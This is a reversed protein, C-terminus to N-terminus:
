TRAHQADLAISRWLAPLMCETVMLAAGHREFVSRRAAFAQPVPEGVPLARQALAYLPHGPSVRRSVLASRRVQVDRYLLEALARTRLRRIAQWVGHSAELPSLSHAAVCPEGDVSLVVERVWCAARATVALGAPEDAWPRAITERTVRVEVAGLTALHATLSGGRTLWDKCVAPLAPAPRARWRADAVDFRMGRAARTM